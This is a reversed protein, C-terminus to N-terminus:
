SSKLPNSESPKTYPGLFLRAYMRILSIGSLVFSFAVIFGLIFQNNNIHSFLLDEGIFSPTVPFGTLGLTALFFLLALKPYKEINGNYQNLTTNEYDLKRLKSLALYGIAGSVIIGSLFILTQELEISENFSIALALSLHNFLILVWTLRPFVRESFSKLVMLLGSFAIIIPLYQKINQPIYKQNFYLLIGLVYLPLFYYLV